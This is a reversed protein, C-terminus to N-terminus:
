SRQSQTPQDDCPTAPLAPWLRGPPLLCARGSTALMSCWQCARCAMFAWSMGAQLRKFKWQAWRLHRNQWPSRLEARIALCAAPVAYKGAICSVAHKCGLM